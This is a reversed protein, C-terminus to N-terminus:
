RLQYHSPNNPLHDRLQRHFLIQAPSLGLHQIPTNRYQLLARAAKDTDLSGRITNNLIIRKATKVALEARGNSQPYEASSLRHRIGWSHLFNKFESSKFQPGGDSAIEEPVGYSTFLSRLHTILSLTTTTNPLHYINLWYSFRDVITLYSSGEHEFYDTCLQQFPWEPSTTLILPEASQSPAIQNCDACQNRHNRICANMGPWYVTQNARASMGTTGQHAAHLNQM